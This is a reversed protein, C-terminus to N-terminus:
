SCNQLDPYAMAFIRIKRLFCSCHQVITPDVESEHEKQQYVGEFAKFLIEALLLKLFYIAAPLRKRANIECGL